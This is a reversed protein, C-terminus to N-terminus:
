LPTLSDFFWSSPVFYVLRPVRRSGTRQEVTHWVFMWLCTTRLSATTGAHYKNFASRSHRLYHSGLIYVVFLRCTSTSPMGLSKTLREYLVQEFPRRVVHIKPRGPTVMWTYLKSCM